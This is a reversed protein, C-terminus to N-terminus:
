ESMFKRYSSAEIFQITKNPVNFTIKTTIPSEGMCTQFIHNRLYQKGHKGSISVDSTMFAGCQGQINKNGPSDSIRVKFLKKDITCEKTIANIQGITNIDKMSIFEGVGWQNEKKNKSIEEGKSSYAGEYTIVINKNKHDCQYSIFKWVSDAQATSLFSLPMALFIFILKILAKM